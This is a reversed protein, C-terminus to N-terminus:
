RFSRECDVLYNIRLHLGCYFLHSPPQYFAAAPLSTAHIRYQMDTGFPSWSPPPGVIRLMQLCCKLTTGSTLPAYRMLTMDERSIPPLPHAVMRGAVIDVVKEFHEIGPNRAASQLFKEYIEAGTQHLLSVNRLKEKAANFYELQQVVSLGQPRTAAPYLITYMIAEEKQQDLTHSNLGM